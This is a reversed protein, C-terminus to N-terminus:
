SVHKYLTLLYYSYHENFANNEVGECTKRVFLGETGWSVVIVNFFGDLM